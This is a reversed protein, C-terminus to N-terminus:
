LFVFKGEVQTKSSNPDNPRGGSYQLREPLVLGKPAPPGDVVIVEGPKLFPRGPRILLNVRVVESGRGLDIREPAVSAPQQRVIITQMFAAVISILEDVKEFARLYRLVAGSTSRVHEELVAMRYDYQAKLRSGAHGVVADKTVQGAFRKGVETLAARDADSLAARAGAFQRWAQSQALGAALENLLEACDDSGGLKTMDPPGRQQLGIDSLQREWPFHHFFNEDTDLLYASGPQRHPVRLVPYGPLRSRLFEIVVQFATGAEVTDTLWEEDNTDRLLQETVSMHNLRVGLLLPSIRLWSYSATVKDVREAFDGSDRDFARLFSQVKPTDRLSGALAAATTWLHESM